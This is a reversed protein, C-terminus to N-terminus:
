FLGIAKAGVAAAALQFIIKSISAFRAIPRVLDVDLPVVITDGPQIDHKDTVSFWGGGTDVSGDARVVYIHKKDAKRTVGGSMDVYQKRDTSKRYLHSTPYFVEGTVTVEQTLPPIYLRDGDELTVDLDSRRGKKTEELLEPLNIVLRGVPEVARLQTGLARVFDLSQVKGGEEQALQLSLAALDTELRRSLEELQRKERKRLEERLFVAGRAFAIDTLGGARQLLKSLQEGRAIPYIGPFRVEGKLEVTAATEWEPLRKIQLDDYPQLIWDAVEVGKLIEALDVNVHGVERYSGDIVVYRTLEASLAYAAEALGGGARILDSVRMGKELPYEGPHRLLGGARVVRAPQRYTAQRSLLEVLPEVIESRDGNFDFLILEDRPQLEINEASAPNLLAEGPRVSFLEIRHDPELERKVLAYDLDPRPLLDNEISSILDTIRMGARWQYGGPRQVHGSLLVIDEMKELISFIRLVDGDQVATQLGAKKGADLDILTREGRKNIREIQSVQPYATPLLGGALTLAQGVSRENRLEYIAPRRVEGAVGLTAGVPPVFIVDGPQLRVDHATDGHLLLDYLDLRAVVEGRRKLQIKRLSGIPKVGGGVFLANTMTSLASVTYSGPREVDGLIFVRISRLKGLTIVVKEGIMQEEIQAQLVEKMDRFTLGAVSVPGIKPFQLSGERTVVLSYEAHEKGFLQVLVTDGPGMVYNVDVPIGDAPAFTTPVDAFLDYGFRPLPPREGRGLEPEPERELEREIETLGLAGTDAEEGNVVEVRSDGAPTAPVVPLREEAARQEGERQPRKQLRNKLTARQEPTLRELRQQQSEMLTARQEPTLRELQQLQQETLSEASVMAATGGVVLFATVVMRAIWGVKKKIGSIV